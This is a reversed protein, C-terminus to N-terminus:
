CTLRAATAPKTLRKSLLKAPMEINDCGEESTTDDTRVTAYTELRVVINLAEELTKPERERAKLALDQDLLSDLFSDRGIIETVDVCPGPFALTLLRRIDQYVSRLSEGSKQRRTRLEVRFRERHNDSGFRLKLLDLLASLSSVKEPGVDWLCQAADKILSTQLHALQDNESLQNYAACVALKARFTKFPM